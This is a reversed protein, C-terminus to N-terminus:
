TAEAGNLQARIDKKLVKGVPSRPLSERFVVKKPAKISGLKEKCLAIIAIEDAQGGPKLEVVAVVKEGWDEDAVGVVACDHVAPHSWIVQEVEGPYINFGGSIIMDKKRDVIHLFGSRDFLGIDGTHHWGFAHAEENAAENKYYGPTVLEGRLVIEGREGTTAFNGEDDMLAVECAGTIRGASALPSVDAGKPLLHDRHSLISVVGPAESQGYLQVFVPGWLELGQQLKKVSMPAAGYVVSELASLDCKQANEHALLRYIVTPPLFVHSVKESEMELLIEGPSRSGAVINTTAFEALALTTAGAAHTLPAVILHVPNDTQPACYLNVMRYSTELARHTQMIAKPKGTTGGSAKIIAVDDLDCKVEVSEGKHITMWNELFLGGPELEQDFSIVQRLRPFLARLHEIRGAFASHCILVEVDASDMFGALTEDGDGGNLPVYTAGSRVIAIIAILALPDNPALLGVHGNALGAKCLGFAIAHSAIRAQEYTFVCGKGRIFVREPHQKAGKDFRDIIM